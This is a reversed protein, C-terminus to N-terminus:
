LPRISPLNSLAEDASLVQWNKEDDDNLTSLKLVKKHHYLLSPRHGVSVYTIDDDKLCQVWARLTPVCGCILLTM